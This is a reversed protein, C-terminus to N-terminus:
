QPAYTSGTIKAEALTTTDVQKDTQKDAAQKNAPLIICLGIAGLQLSRHMPWLFSENFKLASLTLAKNKEILRRTMTFHLM